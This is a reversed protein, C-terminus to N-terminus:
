LKLRKDNYKNELLIRRILKGSLRTKLQGAIPRQNAKLYGKFNGKCNHCDIIHIKTHERFSKYGWDRIGM